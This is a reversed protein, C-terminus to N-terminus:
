FFVCGPNSRFIQNERREDDAPTDGGGAYDSSQMGGSLKKMCIRGTLEKGCLFLMEYHGSAPDSDERGTEGPQDVNGINEEV